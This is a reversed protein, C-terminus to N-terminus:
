RDALAIAALLAKRIEILNDAQYSITYMDERRLCPIMAAKEASEVFKFGLQMMFPGEPAFPQIKGATRVAAEAQGKILQRTKELPMCDASQYSLYKKVVAFYVGEPLIKELEKRLMDDGSVMLLPTKDCGAMAAAFEAEGFPRDNITLRAVLRSSFSHALVGPHGERAHYGILFLGDYDAFSGTHELRRTSGALLKAAPHLASYIINDAADHNDSVYVESAGGTMCGEVAANVDEMLNKRGAEYASGNKTVQEWSFVGSVGEMDTRIIIKM